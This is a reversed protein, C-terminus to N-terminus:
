TSQPWHMGRLQNPCQLSPNCLTLSVSSRQVEVNLSAPIDILSSSANLQNDNDQETCPRALGEPRSSDFRISPTREPRDNSGSNSEENSFLNFKFGLTFHPFQNQCSRTWSTQSCRATDVELCFTVCCIRFCSAAAALGLAFNCARDRALTLRVEM